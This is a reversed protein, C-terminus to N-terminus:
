GTKERLCKCIRIKYGAKQLVGFVFGSIQAIDRTLFVMPLILYVEPRNKIGQFWKYHRFLSISMWMLYIGVAFILFVSNKFFGAYLFSLLIIFFVIKRIYFGLKINLYGNTKGHQHFKKFFAFFTSRPQWYVIAKSTFKTKFRGAMIKSIFIVDESSRIDEPFGGIKHWVDKQFGMSVVSPNSKIFETTTIFCKELLTKPAPKYRGFVVETTPDVEFPKILEELWNENPRCGADISAIIEHKANTISTNRGKGPFAEPLCILRITFGKKIYDNIILKTRDASGGDTIIIEDPKRSQTLLADLLDKISTEENRVPVIVSIKM